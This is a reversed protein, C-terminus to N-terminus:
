SRAPWGRARAAATRALLRMGDLVMSSRKVTGSPWVVAGPVLGQPGPAVVRRACASRRAGSGACKPAERRPAPPTPRAPGAATCISTTAASSTKALTGFAEALDPANKHAAAEVVRKSRFHLQEQLAFFPEPLLGNLEDGGIPRALMPEDYIAGAARAAGDFDLVVVRTILDTVQIAHRDM